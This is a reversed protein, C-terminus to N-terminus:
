EQQAREPKAMALIEPYAGITAASIKVDRYERTGHISRTVQAEVQDRPGVFEVVRLVRVTDQPHGM